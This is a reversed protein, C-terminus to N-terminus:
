ASSCVRLRRLASLQPPHDDVLCASAIRGGTETGKQIQGIQYLIRVVFAPSTGVIRLVMTERITLIGM